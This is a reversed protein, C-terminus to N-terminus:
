GRFQRRLDRSGHLVRVLEIGDEVPKYFLLYDGVPFSRLGPELDDRAPGMGPMQALDQLQADFANTLDAASIDGKEAIFLWIELYDIESQPSRIARSM